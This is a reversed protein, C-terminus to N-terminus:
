GKWFDINIEELEIELETVRSESETAEEGSDLTQIEFEIQEIEATFVALDEDDAAIDDSEWIVAPLISARYVGNTPQVDSPRLMQLSIAALIIIAAAIGAAEYLRRRFHKIRQRSLHITIEAKINAILTDDPAPAPHESLIQEGRRFDEVFRNAQEAEFFTEILKKLDTQNQGDM